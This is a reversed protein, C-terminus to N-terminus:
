SVPISLKSIKRIHEHQVVTPSSLKRQYQQLEDKLLAQGDLMAKTAQLHQSETAEFDHHSVKTDLYAAKEDIRGYRNPIQGQLREGLM